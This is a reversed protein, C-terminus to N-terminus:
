FSSILLQSRLNIHSFVSPGCSRTPIFLLKYMDATLLFVDAKHSVLECYDYIAIGLAKGSLELQESLSFINLQAQFTPNSPKLQENSKGHEGPSWVATTSKTHVKKPEHHGSHLSLPLMKSLSFDPLLCQTLSNNVLVISPLFTPIKQSCPLHHWM